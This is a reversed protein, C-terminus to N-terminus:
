GGANGAGMFAHTSQVSVVCQSPTLQAPDVPASAKWPGSGEIAFPKELGLDLVQSRQGQNEMSPADYAYLEVVDGARVYTEPVVGGNFTGTATVINSLVSCSSPLLISPDQGSSSLQTSVSISLYEPSIATTSTAQRTPTTTTPVPSSTVTTTPAGVASKKVSCGGLGAVAVVSGVAIFRTNM